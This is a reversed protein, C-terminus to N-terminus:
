NGTINLRAGTAMNITAGGNLTVSFCTNATGSVSPMNPVGSNVVVRTCAVPVTGTSWNSASNWNNTLGLWTASPNIVALVALRSDSLNGDFNQSGYYTVNNALPTTTPL